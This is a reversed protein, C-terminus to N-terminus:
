EVGFKMKVLKTFMRTSQKGEDWFYNAALQTSIFTEASEYDSLSDIHAIASAYAEANGKFLENLLVFKKNLDILEKLPKSGLKKHIEVASSTKLKENLTSGAKITENISSSVTQAKKEVRPEVKPEVKVEKVEAKAVVVKEEKIIVPEKIVVPEAKKVPEAVKHVAAEEKIFLDDNPRIIPRKIITTANSTAEKKDPSAGESGAQLMLTDTEDYLSRIHQMLLDREIKSIAPFAPNDVARNIKDLLDSIKPPKM